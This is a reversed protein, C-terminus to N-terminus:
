HRMGQHRNADGGTLGAGIDLPAIARCRSPGSEPGIAAPKRGRCVATPHMRRARPCM